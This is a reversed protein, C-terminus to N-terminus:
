ALTNVLIDRPTKVKALRSQLFNPWFTEDAKTGPMYMMGYFSIECLGRLRYPYVVMGIEIIGVL